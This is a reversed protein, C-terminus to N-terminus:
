VPRRRGAFDLAGVRQSGTQQRGAQGAVRRAQLLDDTVRHFKSKAPMGWGLAGTANGPVCAQEARIGFVVDVPDGGRDAGTEKLVDTRGPPLADLGAYFIATVM